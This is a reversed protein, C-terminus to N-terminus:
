TEPKLDGSHVWDRFRSSCLVAFGGCFELAPIAAFLGLFLEDESVPIVRAGIPAM